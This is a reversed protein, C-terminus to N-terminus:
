PHVEVPLFSYDKPFGKKEFLLEGYATVEWNQKKPRGWKDTWETEENLKGAAPRTDHVLGILCDVPHAQRVVVFLTGKTARDGLFKVKERLSRKLRKTPVLMIPVIVNLDWTTPKKVRRPATQRVWGKRPVWIHAATSKPGSFVPLEGDQLWLYIVQM